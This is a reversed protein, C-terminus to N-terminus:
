PLIWKIPTKFLDLLPRDTESDSIAMNYQYKDKPYNALLWATKQIGYLHHYNGNKDFYSGSGEWGLKEVLEKVYDNPSASILVNLTEAESHEDILATVKTNLDAYLEDSFAKLATPPVHSEVWSQMKRKFGELSLLRLLRLIVWLTPFFRLARVQKLCLVRFSDYDILTKDLDIANLKRKGM